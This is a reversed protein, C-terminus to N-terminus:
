VRKNRLAQVRGRQEDSLNPDNLMEWTIKNIEEASYFGAEALSEMALLKSGCAVERMRARMEVSSRRKISFTKANLNETTEDQEANNEPETM